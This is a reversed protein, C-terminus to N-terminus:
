GRYTRDPLASGRCYGMGQAIGDPGGGCCRARAAGGAAQHYTEGPYADAPNEWMIWRSASVFCAIDAGYFGDPDYKMALYQLIANSEWLVFGDDLITPVTGNPNMARYEPTNVVGFAQNGKAVHGGAGMTGSALVLEHPLGLEAMALLVKQTRASSPRGWIKITM